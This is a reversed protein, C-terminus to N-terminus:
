NVEPCNPNHIIALATRVEEQADKCGHRIAPLRAVMEPDFGNNLFDIADELSNTLEKEPDM